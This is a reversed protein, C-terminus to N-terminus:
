GRRGRQAVLFEAFGVDRGGDAAAVPTQKRGANRTSREGQEWVGNPFPTKSVRNRTETDYRNSVSNGSFANGFPTQSRSSFSAQPSLILSSSHPIFFGKM